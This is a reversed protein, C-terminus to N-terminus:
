PLLLFVPSSLPSGLTRHGSFQDALLGADIEVGHNGDQTSAHVARMALHDDVRGFFDDSGSDNLLFFFAATEFLFQLLLLKKEYPLCDNFIV